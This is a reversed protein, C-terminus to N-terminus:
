SKEELNVLEQYATAILGAVYGNNKLLAINAVMSQNNSLEAIRSLLWPTIEAGRIGNEEAEAVASEIIGSIQEAPVEDEIPVPSTVLIGNKLGLTHHAQVIRAMEEASDVRQNVPYSSQHSYFLPLNDCGYGLVPVGQTELVELTNPVDLIAKVGGCIVTVPTKGLEMLDASVDFNHGRHVGGIGGTAFFKIGALDALIMTAAVTTSGNEKTVMVTPLDRRSCKRAGDEPLKALYELDDATLGIRIEGQIIAITAPVAGGKRVADEMGQATEINKPWPLGHTIVTSELAVVPRGNALAEAVEPLFKLHESKM